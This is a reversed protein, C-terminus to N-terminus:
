IGHSRSHSFHLRYPSSERISAFLDVLDRCINDFVWPLLSWETLLFQDPRSLQDALINRKEPIYTALIANHVTRALRQDGPGLQVHKAIADRGAKRSVGSSYHQQELTSFGRWQYSHLFANFALHVTEAESVSIYLERGQSM